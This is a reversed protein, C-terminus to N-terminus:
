EAEDGKYPEPLPQWAIIDTLYPRGHNVGTDRHWTNQGDFYSADTLRTGEIIRTVNYVENRNPLKESIPIWEDQESEELAKIALDLALYFNSPDIVGTPVYLAIKRLIEIAEKNTM